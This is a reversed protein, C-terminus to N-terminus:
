AVRDGATEDEQPPPPPPPADSMDAMVVAFLKEELLKLKALLETVDGGEAQITRVEEYTLSLIQLYIDAVRVNKRATIELDELERELRQCEVMAADLTTQSLRLWMDGDREARQMAENHAMYGYSGLILVILVWCGNVLLGRM